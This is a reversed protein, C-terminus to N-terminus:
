GRAAWTVVRDVLRDAIPSSDSVLTETLHGPRVLHIEHRCARLTQLDNAVTLDTRNIFCASEAAAILTAPDARSLLKFGVLYAGPAWDRVSHIVKPTSRCRIVLEGAESAIKGPIPEPEYDSAAMALFIVDFPRSRLTQELTRAYDAVTGLSLPVLHLRDRVEQWYHYLASLRELEGDLDTTTLDFRAVHGFPLEAGPAHIHWVSAGRKLWAETIRASFRGTSTNTIQRVDDIPAITGGGAVVVNM